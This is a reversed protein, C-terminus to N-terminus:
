PKCNRCPSYCRDLFEDRSLLRLWNLTDARTVSPCDPRHFRYSDKKGFYRDCTEPEPLSWIGLELARAQQQADCLSDVLAPNSLDDMFFYACALGEALLVRNLLIGDAYVFALERGYRDFRRRGHKYNLETDQLLEALRLKAEEYFPEGREPTDIGLLRVRIGDARRFSDGDVVTLQGSVIETPPAEQRPRLIILLVLALVVVLFLLLRRRTLSTMTKTM